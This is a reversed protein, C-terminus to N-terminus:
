DAGTPWSSKIMTRYSEDTDAPIDLNHGCSEGAARTFTGAQQSPVKPDSVVGGSGDRMLWELTLKEDTGCATAYRELEKEAKGRERNKAASPFFFMKLHKSIFLEDRRFDNVEM